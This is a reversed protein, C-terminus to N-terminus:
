LKVESFDYPVVEMLCRSDMEREGEMFRRTKFNLVQMDFNM